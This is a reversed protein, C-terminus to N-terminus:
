RGSDTHRLRAPMLTASFQEAYAEAEEDMHHYVVIV